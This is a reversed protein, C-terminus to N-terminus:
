DKYKSIIDGIDESLKQDETHPVSFINNLSDITNPYKGELIFPNKECRTYRSDSSCVNIIYSKENIDSYIRQIRPTHDMSSISVIIDPNLEDSLEIFSKIENVTNGGYRNCLITEYQNNINTFEDAVKKTYECSLKNNVKANGLYVIKINDKSCINSYKEAVTKSKKVRDKTVEKRSKTYESETAFAHIGILIMVNTTKM